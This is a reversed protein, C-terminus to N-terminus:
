YLQPPVLEVFVPFGTFSFGACKNNKTESGGGCLCFLRSSGGGPSVIFGWFNAIDLSKRQLKFFYKNALFRSLIPACM